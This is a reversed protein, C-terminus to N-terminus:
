SNNTEKKRKNENILSFVIKALKEPDHNIGGSDKLIDVGIFKMGDLNDNIKVLSLLELHKEKYKKLRQSSPKKTNYIVYDVKGGLYKEIERSFDLVSFNNTEGDKTMLNCIYVKKAKSERITESIGKTLLIQALSSYLDGPGIIILDAKKIADLSKPYANVEPDLYVKEIKLRSNHKPKDINTEGKIIQGNELVACLESNELTVPLVQHKIKLLKKLEYFTKEYNNTSLELATILLNAFHHGKLIGKKFRYNFLNKIAPSTNALVLFARRIDGPSVIKYEKRLRGASGGSDLMACIVSIKLPYKKLGALVAKPMANGGGLCVVRKKM